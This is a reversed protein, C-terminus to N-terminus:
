KGTVPVGDCQPHPSNAHGCVDRPGGTCPVEEVYKKYVWGWIGHKTDRTSVYVWTEKWNKSLPRHWYDSDALVLAVERKTDQDNNNKFLGDGRHLTWINKSKATPAYRLALFGDSTKKVEFCVDREYPVEPYSRCSGDVECSEAQAAGTAMLLAVVGTLLLKKM